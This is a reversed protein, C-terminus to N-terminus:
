WRRIIRDKADSMLKLYEQDKLSRYDRYLVEFKAASSIDKTLQIYTCYIEFATEEENKALALSFQDFISLTEAKGILPPPSEESRLEIPSILEDDRLHIPDCQSFHYAIDDARENGSIGSHARVKSWEVQYGNQKREGVLRDLEEWHSRNQIGKWGNRKWGSIWSTIGMYVYQSDTYIRVNGNVGKLRKFAETAARLEMQNNTARKVHGGGEVTQHGTQIVYAWGASGPNPDASGDIYISIPFKHFKPLSKSM